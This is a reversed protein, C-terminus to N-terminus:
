HCRCWTSVQNLPVRSLIDCSPLLLGIIWLWSSLAQLESSLPITVNHHINFGSILWRENWAVTDCSWFIFGHSRKISIIIKSINCEHKSILGIYIDLHEWDERWEKPSNSQQVTLSMYFSLALLYKERERSLKLYESASLGSKWNALRELTHVQCM